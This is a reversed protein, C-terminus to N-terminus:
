ERKSKPKLCNSWVTEQYSNTNTRSPTSNTGKKDREGRAPVEVKHTKTHNWSDILSQKNWKM